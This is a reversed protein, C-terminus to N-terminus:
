LRDDHKSAVRPKAPVQSPPPHMARWLMKSDKRCTWSRCSWSSTLLGSGTTTQSWANRMIPLKKMATPKLDKRFPLWQQSLSNTQFNRLWFRKKLCVQLLVTQLQLIRALQVCKSLLWRAAPLCTTRRWQLQQHRDRRLGMRQDEEKLYIRVLRRRIQSWRLRIWQLQGRNKLNRETEERLLMIQMRPESRRKSKRQRRRRLSPLTRACTKLLWTTFRIEKM